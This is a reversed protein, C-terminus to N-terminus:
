AMTNGACAPIIGGPPNVHLAVVHHEGRMRPHDLYHLSNTNSGGTNGACAPIIGAAQEYTSGYRQTGRAHPSSGKIANNKDIQVSHEGRM